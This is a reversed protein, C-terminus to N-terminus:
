KQLLLKKQTRYVDRIFYFPRQNPILILEMELKVDPSDPRAKEYWERMVTRIKEHMGWDLQENIRFDNSNIQPNENINIHLIELISSDTGGKNM